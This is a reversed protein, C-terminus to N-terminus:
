SDYEVREIKLMKEGGFRLNESSEKAEVLVYENEKWNLYEILEKPITVVLSNGQRRLKVIKKYASM